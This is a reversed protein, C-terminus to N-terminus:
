SLTKVGKPTQILAALRPVEGSPIPELCLLRDAGLSQLAALIEDTQPHFGHLSVLSCGADMMGSAPHVTEDWQILFPLIGGGVLRGGDTLTLRWRLNDRSMPTVPGLPVISRGALQEIRDTRAAWTILLPKRGLRERMTESDLDFWRPHRPKPALPNIAIVELYCSEGLRLVRNHTGQAAHEGGERPRIGLTDFLYESGEELSGAAIVLHDIQPQTAGPM